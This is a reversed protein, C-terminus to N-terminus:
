CVGLTVIGRADRKLYPNAPAKEATKSETGTEEVIAVIQGSM